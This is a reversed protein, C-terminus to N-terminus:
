VVSAGGYTERIDLDIVEPKHWSETSQDTETAVSHLNGPNTQVEKEKLMGEEEYGLKNEKRFYVQGFM